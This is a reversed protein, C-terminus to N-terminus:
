WSLGQRRGWALWDTVMRAVDGRHEPRVPNEGTIARLATFWFGPRTEMERLILPVVSPGLGIVAQYSPLGTILPISSQFRSEEYWHDALARFQEHLTAKQQTIPSHFHRNLNVLSVAVNCLDDGVVDPVDSEARYAGLYPEEWLLHQPSIRRHATTTM